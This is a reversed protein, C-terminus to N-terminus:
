FFVDCGFGVGVFFEQYVVVGLFYVLFDFKFFLYVDLVYVYIDCLLDMMICLDLNLNIIMDSLYIIDSIYIFLLM